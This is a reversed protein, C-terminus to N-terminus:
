DTKIVADYIMEDCMNKVKKIEEADLRNDTHRNTMIVKLVEDIGRKALYLLIQKNTQKQTNAIERGRVFDPHDWIVYIVGKETIPLNRWKAFDRVKGDSEKGLITKYSTVFAKGVQPPEEHLYFVFSKRDLEEDAAKNKLVATASYEGANDTNEDFDILPLDVKKRAHNAVIVNYRSNHKQAGEAHELTIELLLEKQEDTENVVDCEIILTENYEFKRQNPRFVDIRIPPKPRPNGPGPHPGEREPKGGRAQPGSLLEPAYQEILSNVLKVAESLINGSVQVKQKKPTIEMVFDELKKRVFERVHNWAKKSTFGFHNPQECKKLEAELDEHFNVYGFIKNKITEEAAVTIRTITMGGRQVAIGRIDEPLDENCYYILLNKITGLDKLNILKYEKAKVITPSPSLKVERDTGDFNVTFKADYNRIIEWWTVEIYRMFKQYDLLQDKLDSRLSMIWIRTGQHNLRSESPLFDNLTKEEDDWEENTGYSFRYVGHQDITETLVLKNESFYHFLFKGQGRAGLDTDVKTTDWLSQYQIWKEADMGTTSFDEILLCNHDPRYKFVLMWDTGKKTARADWSNQGADKQLGEFINQYQDAIQEDSRGLNVPRKKM